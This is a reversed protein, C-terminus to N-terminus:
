SYLVLVELQMSIPSLDTEVILGRSLPEFLQLKKVLPFKQILNLTSQLWMGM